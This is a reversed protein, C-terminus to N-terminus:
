SDGGPLDYSFAPLTDNNRKLRKNRAALTQNIKKLQATIEEATATARHIERIIVDYKSHNVTPKQSTVFMM